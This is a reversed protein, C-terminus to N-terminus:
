AKYVVCVSGHFHSQLKVSARRGAVYCGISHICCAQVALIGNVVSNIVVLAMVHLM